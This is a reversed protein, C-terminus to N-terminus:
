SGSYRVRALTLLVLFVALAAASFLYTRPLVKTRSVLETAVGQPTPAVTEGEVSLKPALEEAVKADDRGLKGALVEHALSRATVVDGREFADWAARLLSREDEARQEKKKAM